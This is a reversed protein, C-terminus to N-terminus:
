VGVYDRVNKNNRMGAYTMAQTRKATSAMGKRFQDETVYREGRQETVTYRVDIPENNSDDQQLASAKEMDSRPVVRGTVGPFFFEPEKEGVVYGEGPKTVGGNALFGGFGASFASGIGPIASAGASFVSSLAPAAAGLGPIAAGIVSSFLSGLGGSGFTGPNFGGAGGASFVSSLPGSVGSGLSGLLGGTPSIGNAASAIMLAQTHAAMAATHAQETAAIGGGMASSGGFIGAVGGALSGLQGQILNSLQQQASDAFSRSVSDLVDRGVDEFTRAGSIVDVLGNTLAGSIAESVDVINRELNEWVLRAEEQRKIADARTNAQELSGGQSLVEEFGRAQAGIRGARLGAGIFPTDNNIQNTGQLIENQKRLEETRALDTEYAAKQQENMAKYGDTVRALEIASASLEGRLLAANEVAAVEGEKRANFLMTNAEEQGAIQNALELNKRKQQEESKAINLGTNSQENIMAQAKALDAGAYQKSVKALANAREKEIQATRAKSEAELDALALEENSLGLAAQRASLKGQLAAFEQQLAPVQNSQLIQEVQALEVGKQRLQIQEELIRQAEKESGMMSALVKMREANLPAASPTAGIPTPNFQPQGAGVMQTAAMAQMATAGKGISEKTLHMALTGRATTGAVGTPGGMDRIGGVPIGLPEGLKAILDIATAPNKGRTEHARMGQQLATTLANGRLGTAEIDLGGGGGIWTKMGMAARNVIADAADAVIAERTSGRLDVMGYGPRLSMRGTRGFAAGGMASGPAAGPAGTAAQPDFGYRRAQGLVLGPYERSERSNGAPTRAQAGPGQNYARLGAEVSGFRDIMQRLYLAAGKLNESVIRPNVGLEQATGPKLQGLGIAGSSSVAQPNFASEQKVLGALLRPDLNANKAAKNIEYGFPIGTTSGLPSYPATGSTGGGVEGQAMAQRMYDAAERSRQLVYDAVNMKYDEVSRVYALKRREIDEIERATTRKYDEVDRGLKALALELKKRSQEIDAEGEKRTRMVERVNTLLQQEFGVAPAFTERASLDGSEIQNQTAARNNDIQKEAVQQRLDFIEREKRYSYDAIERNLDAGERQLDYAQRQLKFAERYASQIDDAAKRSEQIRTTQDAFADQPTLAPRDSSAEQAKMRGKRQLGGLPNTYVEVDLLQQFINFNEKRKDVEVQKAAEQPTKPALGPIKSIAEAIDAFAATTEILAPLLNRQLAGALRAWEEGLRVQETNLANLERVGGAGLRREVEQLVLTQADYGRGVAQLQEVQFKLSNGVRFGSAELAAMADTPSKLSDALGKINTTLADFQMGIASGVLGGAFGAGPGLLSAAGGIAGGAATGAGQGFLLPFAGGILVESSVNRIAENRTNRLNRSAGRRQTIPLQEYLGQLQGYNQFVNFPARQSELMEIQDALRRQEIVFNARRNNTIGSRTGRVQDTTLMQTAGAQLYAARAQQVAGRAAAIDANMSRQAQEADVLSRVYADMTTALQGRRREDVSTEALQQYYNGPIIQSL